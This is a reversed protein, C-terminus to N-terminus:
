QESEEAKLHTLLNAISKQVIKETSHMNKPYVFWIRGPMPFDEVDKACLQQTWRGSSRLVSRPLVAAISADM